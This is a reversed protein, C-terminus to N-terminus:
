EEGVILYPQASEMIPILWKHEKNLMFQWSNPRAHIKQHFLGHASFSQSLETAIESDKFVLFVEVDGNAACAYRVNLWDYEYTVEELYGCLFEWGDELRINFLNNGKKDELKVGSFIYAIIM